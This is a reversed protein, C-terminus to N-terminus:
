AVLKALAHEREDVVEVVAHGFGEAPGVPALEKSSSRFRAASGGLLVLCPTPPSPRPALRQWFTPDYPDVVALQAGGGSVPWGEANCRCPKVSARAMPWQPRCVEDGDNDIVAIPGEFRGLEQSYPV